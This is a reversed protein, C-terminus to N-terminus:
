GGKGREAPRYLFRYERVIDEERDKEPIERATVCIELVADTEFQAPDLELYCSSGTELVAGNRVLLKRMQKDRLILPLKEGNQAMEGFAVTEQMDKAPLKTRAIVKEVPAMFFIIGLLFGILWRGPEKETRIVNQLPEYFPETRLKKEVMLNQWLWAAAAFFIMCFLSILPKKVGGYRLAQGYFIWACWVTLALLFFTGLPLLAKIPRSKGEEELFAKLADSVAEMTQYRRDPQEEMCKEVIKVLKQPVQPVCDGLGLAAYPPRSIDKGVLLAYLTRGLGFVDSRVDARRLSMTEKQLGADSEKDTGTRCVGYGFQEPAAYGPSAAIPEGQAERQEVVSGFDVLWLKGDRDLMINSPKCDLYLLTPQMKHLKGIAECLAIGIRATEEAPLPGTREMKRALTEGEIRDMVLYRCAEEEAVDVIRPFASGDLRALVLQEIGPCNKRVRKAVWEKDLKRDRVLYVKGAGGCGLERVVEYKEGIVFANKDDHEM